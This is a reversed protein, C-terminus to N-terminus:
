PRDTDPQVIGPAPFAAANDGVHRGLPLASGAPFDQAGLVRYVSDHQLCDHRIRPWVREGLFVQDASRSQTGTRYRFDRLLEALPPLCGRVGGWLGALMLDTHAPHDRMVHFRLGSALWENVAAAERTSVVSDADRVLFHTVEPDDIVAFRWFLADAPRKPRPVRRLQAGSSVLAACTDAPVSDDVHFRCVWAPYLRRAARVNALAGDLYRPDSGFLSFSIIHRRTQAAHFAPRPLVVGDPATTGAALDKALLSREGCARAREIEGARGWAHALADLLRPSPDPREAEAAQLETLAADHRGALLLAMGLNLALDPQGPDLERARKLATVAGHGDRAAFLLSALRHCDAAQQLAPLNEIQALNVTHVQAAIAKALQGHAHARRARDRWHAAGEAGDSRPLNSM